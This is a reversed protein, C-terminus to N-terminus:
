LLVIQEGISSDWDTTDAVSAFFWDLGGNGSVADAVGDDQVTASNLLYPGNVGGGNSLNNVRGAYTSGQTWEAKLADLAIWNSDFNTTGGILIDEDDDGTLADAGLGGILLDRGANGSLINIGAGGVLIDNGTGGKVNEFNSVGGTAGTALGLPLIVRVDTAFASYDLSDTGGQGDIKM